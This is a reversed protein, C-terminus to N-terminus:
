VKYGSPYYTPHYDCIMYLDPAERRRFKLKLWQRFTRRNGRIKVHAPCEWYRGVNTM